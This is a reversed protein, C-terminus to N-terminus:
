QPADALQGAAFGLHRRPNPSVHKHAGWRGYNLHTAISVIVVRTLQPVEPVDSCEHLLKRTEGANIVRRNAPKAYM